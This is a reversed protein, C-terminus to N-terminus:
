SKVVLPRGVWERLLRKGMRTTCHDLLWLLSGKQGGNDSNRYVELNNLTNANLMM